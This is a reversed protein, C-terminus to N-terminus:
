SRQPRVKVNFISQQFICILLFLKLWWRYLQFNQPAAEGSSRRASSGDDFATFSSIGSSGYGSLPMSQITSISTASVPSIRRSTRYAVGLLAGGHLGIVQLFYNSGSLFYVYSKTVRTWDTLHWSVISFLSTEQQKVVCIIRVLEQFRLLLEQVTLLLFSIYLYWARSHLKASCLTSNNAMWLSFISQTAM